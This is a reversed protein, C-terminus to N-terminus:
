RIARHRVITAVEPFGHAAAQPLPRWEPRAAPFYPPAGPEGVVIRGVMGAAEHPACYYDYVGPVTLTVSFSRGPELLYGSDWPTATAPIRWPARANDPHYATSTHVGAELEWRIRTGPLIAVGRPEFWVRSGAPDARLRVVVEEGARRLSPLVRLGALSLAGVELFRRRDLRVPTM